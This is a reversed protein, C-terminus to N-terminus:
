IKNLLEPNSHINGIIIMKLITKPKFSPIYGGFVSGHNHVRNMSYGINYDSNADGGHFFVEFCSYNTEEWENEAPIRLIDGEYIEKGNKDKLGTYQMLIYDFCDIAENLMVRSTEGGDTGDSVIPQCNIKRGDWARFKIERDM